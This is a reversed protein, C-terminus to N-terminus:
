LSVNHFHDVYGRQSQGAFIAISVTFYLELEVETELNICMFNFHTQKILHISDNTVNKTHVCNSLLADPLIYSTRKGMNNPLIIAKNRNNELILYRLFIQTTKERKPYEKVRPQHYPWIPFYRVFCGTPKVM